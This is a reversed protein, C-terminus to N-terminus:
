IFLATFNISYYKVGQFGENGVGVQSTQVQKEVGSMSFSETEKEIIKLPFLHCVEDIVEELTEYGEDVHEGEPVLRCEVQQWKNHGSGGPM